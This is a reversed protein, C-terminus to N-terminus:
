QPVRQVREVEEVRRHRAQQPAGNPRPTRPRTGDAGRVRRLVAAAVPLGRLLAGSVALRVENERAGRRRGTRPPAPTAPRQRARPHGRPHRKRRCPPQAVGDLVLLPALIEPRIPPRVPAGTPRRGGSGAPHTPVCGFMHCRLVVAVNTIHLLSHVHRMTLATINNTRIDSLVARSTELITHM